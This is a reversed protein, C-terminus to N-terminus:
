YPDAVELIEQGMLTCDEGQAFIFRMRYTAKYIYGNLELVDFKGKGKLAKIPALQKATDDVGWNPLEEFPTKNRSDSKNTVVEDSDFHLRLLEKGLASAAATCHHQAASAPLNLLLLFAVILFQRM